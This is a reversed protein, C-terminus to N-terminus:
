RCSKTLESPNENEIKESRFNVQTISSQDSIIKLWGVPSHFYEVFSEVVKLKLAAIQDYLKLYAHAIDTKL